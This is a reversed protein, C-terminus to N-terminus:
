RRYEPESLPCRPHLPERNTSQVAFFGASDGVSIIEPRTNELNSLREYLMVRDFPEGHYPDHILWTTKQWFTPHYRLQVIAEILTVLALAFLIPGILRNWDHTNSIM